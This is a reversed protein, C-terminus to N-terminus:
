LKTESISQANLIISINKKIKFKSTAEFLIAYCSM